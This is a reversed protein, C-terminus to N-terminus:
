QSNSFWVSYDDLIEYNKSEKDTAELEVLAFVLSRRKNSIPKVKCTLGYMTDGIDEIELILYKEGNNHEMNIVECPLSINENIYALFAEVTNRDVSWNGCERLVADIRNEQDSM